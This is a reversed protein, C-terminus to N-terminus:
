TITITIPCLAQCFTLPVELNQFAKLIHNKLENVNTNLFLFWFIVMDLVKVYIKIKVGKSVRILQSLVTNKNRPKQNTLKLRMTCQTIKFVSLGRCESHHPIINQSFTLPFIELFLSLSLYIESYCNESAHCFYWKSSWNM